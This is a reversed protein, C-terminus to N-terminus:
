ELDRIELSLSALLVWVLLGLLVLSVFLYALGLYMVEFRSVLVVASM